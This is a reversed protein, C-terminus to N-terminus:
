FLPLCPNPFTRWLLGVFQAGRDSMIVRPLYHQPYYERVFWKAVTEAKTDKLGKFRVGKRLRDTVVVINTCGKSPHLDVMFNILIESWIRDPIPL